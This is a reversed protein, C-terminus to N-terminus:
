PPLTGAELGNSMPGLPTVGGSGNGGESGSSVSITVVSPQAAAAAGTVWTVSEANNVVIPAPSQIYNFATIAVGAGVSGGVIAGLTIAATGSLLTTRKAFRQKLSLKKPAEPKPMDYLFQGNFNNM